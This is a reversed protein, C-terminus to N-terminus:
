GSSVINPSVEFEAFYSDLSTDDSAGPLPQDATACSRNVDWRTSLLDAVDEAMARYTTLKGGVISTIGEVGDRERHDLVFHARRFDGDGDTENDPPDYLPRVGWYSQALQSPSLDPVLESLSEILFKVEQQEESFSDPDDVADNTTGLIDFQQHPVIIDGQTKPRCRNIVTDVLDGGLVAMAGKTPRMRIPIGALAGVEGAWPGTANVVHDFEAIETVQGTRDERVDRAVQLAEVAGDTILVDTVEANTEIRAGERHASVANAVTLRFPDVTADPVVFARDIESTLSPERRRAESATLEEVSIDCSECQSIKNQYYEASDEPRKIFLGGSPEVCHPAIRRLITNETRCVRATETESVAYRAGSHLLRHMHGTAGEALSGREFVTVEFGRMSLDRAVGTGTVGGGIVAVRPGAGM